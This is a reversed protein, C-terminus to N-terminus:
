KAAAQMGFPSRLWKPSRRSSRKNVISAADTSM